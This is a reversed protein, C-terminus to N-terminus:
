TIDRQFFVVKPVTWKKLLVLSPRLIPLETNNSADTKLYFVYCIHSATEKHLAKICFTLSCEDRKIEFDSIEFYRIDFKDCFQNLKIPKKIEVRKIEFWQIRLTFIMPGQANTYHSGVINHNKNKPRCKRKSLSSVVFNFVTLLLRHRVKGYVVTNFIIRCKVLRRTLSKCPYVIKLIYPMLQSPIQLITKKGTKFGTCPM